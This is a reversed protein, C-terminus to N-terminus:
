TVRKRTVNIRMPKRSRGRGDAHGGQVFVPPPPSSIRNKQKSRVTPHVTIVRKMPLPTSALESSQRGIERLSSQFEEMKAKYPQLEKKKYARWDRLEKVETNLKEQAASLKAQATKVNQKQLGILDDCEREKAKFDATAKTLQGEIKIRKRELKAQQRKQQKRAAKTREDEVRTV